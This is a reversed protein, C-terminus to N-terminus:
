DKKEEEDEEEEEEDEEDDRKHLKLYLERILIFKESNNSTKTLIDRLHIMSQEQEEEESV